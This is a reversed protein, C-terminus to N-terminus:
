PARFPTIGELQQMKNLITPVDRSHYQQHHLNASTIQNRYDECARQAKERAKELLQPLDKKSTLLSKMGGVVGRGGPAATKSDKDKGKKEDEVAKKKEALDAL